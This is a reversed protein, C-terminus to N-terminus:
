SLDKEDALMRAAKESLRDIHGLLMAVETECLGALLGRNREQAGAVIADHAALGSKTLSVAERNDRPNVAKAVLKRSVLVSRTTRAPYAGASAAIGPSTACM